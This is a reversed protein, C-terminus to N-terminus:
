GRPKTAKAKAAKAAKAKAAPKKKPAAKAAKAKAAPKKKPAAKAKAAPKKKPAAKAKAPPKSTPKKKMYRHHHCYVSVHNTCLCCRQGSRSTGRCRKKSCRQKCRRGRARTSDHDLINNLRNNLSTHKETRNWWAKCGLYRMPNHRDMMIEAYRVKGRNVKLIAKCEEKIDEVNKEEYFIHGIHTKALAVNLQEYTERKVNFLEGLNLCVLRSRRIQADSLNNIVDAIHRVFPDHCPRSTTKKADDFFSSGRLMAMVVHRSKIVATVMAKANLLGGGTKGGHTMPIREKKWAPVGKGYDGVVIVDGSKVRLIFKKTEETLTKPTKSRTVRQM